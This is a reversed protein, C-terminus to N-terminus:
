WVQRLVFVQRYKGGFEGYLFDLNSEREEREWTCVVGGLVSKVWCDGGVLVVPCFIWNVQRWFERSVARVTWGELTSIRNQGSFLTSFLVRNAQFIAESWSQSLSLVCSETCVVQVLKDDLFIHGSTSM